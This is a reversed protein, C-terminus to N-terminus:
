IHFFFNIEVFILHPLTIDIREMEADKSSCKSLTSSWQDSILEGVSMDRASIAVVAHTVLGERGRPCTERDTASLAEGHGEPNPTSESKSNEIITDAMKIPNAEAEKLIDTRSEPVGIVVFKSNSTNARLHKKWCRKCGKKCGRTYSEDQYHRGPFNLSNLELEGINASAM